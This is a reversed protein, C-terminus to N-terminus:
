TKAVASGIPASRSRGAGDLYVVVPPVVHLPSFRCGAHLRRRFDDERNFGLKAEM